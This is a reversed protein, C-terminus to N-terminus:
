KMLIKMGEVFPVISVDEDDQQYDFLEPVHDKIAAIFYDTIKHGLISDQKFCIKIEGKTGDEHKFRKIIPPDPTSYIKKNM